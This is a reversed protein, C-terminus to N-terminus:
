NMMMVKKEFKNGLRILKDRQILYFIPTIFPIIFISMIWFTKNYIKNKLMDSIVIIWVSFFLILASTFLLQSFEWQQTKAFASVITLIINGIVLIWVLRIDIKFDNNEM